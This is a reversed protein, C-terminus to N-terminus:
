AQTHQYDFFNRTVPRHLNGYVGFITVTIRADDSKVNQWKKIWDRVESRDAIFHETPQRSYMNSYTRYMYRNLEDYTDGVSIYIWTWNKGDDAQTVTYTWTVWTEARKWASRKHYDWFYDVMELYNLTRLDFRYRGYAYTTRNWDGSLMARLTKAADAKDIAEQMIKILRKKMMDSRGDSNSIAICLKETELDM